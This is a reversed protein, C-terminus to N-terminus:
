KCLRWEMDNQTEYEECELIVHGVRNDDSVDSIQCTKSRSDLRGAIGQM